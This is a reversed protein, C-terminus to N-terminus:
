IKDNQQNDAPQKIYDWNRKGRENSEEVDTTM